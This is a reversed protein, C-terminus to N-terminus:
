TAPDLAPVSLKVYVTESPVAVSVACIVIVTLATLLAGVAAFLVTVVLSSM